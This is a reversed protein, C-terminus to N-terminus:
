KFNPQNKGGSVDIVTKKSCRSIEFQITVAVAAHQLISQEVQESVLEGNIVQLVETYTGGLWM